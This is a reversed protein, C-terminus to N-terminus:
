CFSLCRYPLPVHCDLVKKSFNKGLDRYNSFGPEFSTIHDRPRSNPQKELPIDISVRSYLNSQVADNWVQDFITSKILRNNADMTLMGDRRWQYASSYILAACRESLVDKARTFDPISSTTLLFGVLQVFREDKFDTLEYLNCFHM